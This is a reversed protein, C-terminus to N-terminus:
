IACVNPGSELTEADADSLELLGLNALKIMRYAEPPTTQHDAVWRRFEAETTFGVGPNTARIVDWRGAVVRDARREIESGYHAPLLLLQGPWERRARELSQWLLRDWGEQGGLDPRGVSQVFVFDGTLAFEDGAVLTISGLTHGPTHVVRLAAHGFPVVAGDALPAFAFRAPTDDYPSRADDPHVRYPLGWRAAAAPGGSLYDAHVHTDIVAVLRAGSAALVAEYSELQRGPDVVVAEGGSELVYSLSGKGVRDLQTIREITTTPTLARPVYVTEWAAMGGRMSFAEIGRERLFAAAAKSSNGHGCVVAVPREPDLGLADLGPLKVLQSRPMAHFQMARGLRISGRALHETARVDLVQLAEGADLRRAVEQPAIEPVPTTM